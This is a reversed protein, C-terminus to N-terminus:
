EIKDKQVKVKGIPIFAFVYLSRNKSTFNSSRYNDTFGYFYKIGLSMGEGKRFKYGTTAIAAVELRHFLNRNDIRIETSTVNVKENYVLYGQTRLAFQPGLSIFMHNKFKHKLAVPVHFYALEQHYIGVPNFLVTSDLLYVDNQSLKDLGVNSKVLVGTNIFWQQKLKIDFYFGINFKNLSSNSEFGSMTSFNYGIDLGFEIKGTNLKDGLLLSILVQSQGKVAFFLLVALILAKKNM